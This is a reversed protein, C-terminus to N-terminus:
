IFVGRRMRASHLLHPKDSNSGGGSKRKAATLCLLPPPNERMHVEHKAPDRRLLVFAPFERLLKHESQEMLQTNM